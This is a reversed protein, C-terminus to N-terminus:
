VSATRLEHKIKEMQDHLDKVYHDIQEVDETGKKKETTIGQFRLFKSDLAAMTTNLGDLIKVTLELGKRLEKEMDAIADLADRLNLTRMKLKQIDRVVEKYRGIKIFLPARPGVEALTISPKQHVVNPHMHEEHDIDEELDDMEEELDDFAEGEIDRAPVPVPVDREGNIGAKELVNFIQPIIVPLNESENYTPLVISVDKQM